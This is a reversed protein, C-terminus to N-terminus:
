CSNETTLYIALCEAMCDRWLKGHWHECEAECATYTDSCFDALADWVEDSRLLEEKLRRWDGM